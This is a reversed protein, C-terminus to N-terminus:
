DIDEFVEEPPIELLEPNEVYRRFLKFASAYYFGDCIREDTVMKLDIYRRKQVEGNKDLEYETRKTGYSIFVPLNGFNYLHHYIPKIGLSGMSTIIMTGHFPSLKTLFRPLLGFYDLFNLFGVTWRLLLGPIFNLIKMLSDIGNEETEKAANVIEDFKRYVDDITDTPELYVKISTDPSESTLEKKVVMSIEIDHRHYIKQGSVFRNVAPRQSILRTYAALLIHLMSFNTQGEKVKQRCYREAKSIEFSEAFTNCADCRMPMIYATLRNMPQLTRLKYGEVRDGFRRRRKKKEPAKEVEPAVAENEKIEEEVKIENVEVTATATAEKESM